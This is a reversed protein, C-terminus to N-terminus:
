AAVELFKKLFVGRTLKRADIRVNEPLADVLPQSILGPVEQAMRARFALMLLTLAGGIAHFLELGDFIYFASIMPKFTIEVDPHAENKKKDAHKFFGEIRLLYQKYKAFDAPSLAGQCFYIPSEIGREIGIRHCIQHAGAALVHISVPDKDEFWLLIATEFQGRACDLKSVTLDPWEESAM